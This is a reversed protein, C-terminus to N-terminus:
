KDIPPMAVLGTNTQGCTAICIIIPTEIGFRGKVHSGPGTENPVVRIDANFPTENREVALVLAVSPCVSPCVVSRYCRDSCGADVISKTIDALLLETTQM